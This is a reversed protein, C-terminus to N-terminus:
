YDFTGIGYDLNNYNIVEGSTSTLKVFSYDLPVRIGASLNNTLKYGVMPSISFNFSNGSLGLGLGGGYWLKSTFSPTEKKQKSRQASVTTNLGIILALVFFIQIYKKM